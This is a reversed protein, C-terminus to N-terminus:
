VFDLNRTNEPGEDVWGFTLGSCTVVLDHAMHVALFLIAILLRKGIFVLLFDDQIM